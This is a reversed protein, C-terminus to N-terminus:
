ESNLKERAGALEAVRHCTWFIAVMNPHPSPAGRSDEMRKESFRKHSCHNEIHEDPSDFDIAGFPLSFPVDRSFGKHLMSRM